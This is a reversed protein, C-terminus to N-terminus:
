QVRVPASLKFLSFIQLLLSSPINNVIRVTVHLQFMVCVCVCVCM